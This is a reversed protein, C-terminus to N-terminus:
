SAAVGEALANELVTIFDRADDPSLNVASSVSYLESLMRKSEGKGLKADVKPTLKTIAAVLEFDPKAEKSREVIPREESAPTAAQKPPHVIKSGGGLDVVHGSGNDSPPEEKRDEDSTSSVASTEAPPAPPEEKAKTESRRRPKTEAAPESRTQTEAEFTGSEGAVPTLEIDRVEEAVLLGRMADAFGDRLVWSRARMQMMRKPYQTWPGQKGALGAVKADALSFTREIVEPWGKRKARCIAGEPTVKEDIWELLGSAQVLALAADGWVSPRGNIVAINQIAAMPALGVEAGMQMAVIVNEPKGAYDKPALASNAIMQSLRWAEDITKPTFGFRVPPRAGGGAVPLTTPATEQGESM